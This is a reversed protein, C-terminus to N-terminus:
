ARNKEATLLSNGYQMTRNLRTKFHKKHRLKFLKWVVYYSKFRFFIRTLILPKELNGYQMTRNLRYAHHQAGARYKPKWVVYYSKFKKSAFNKVKNQLTEM